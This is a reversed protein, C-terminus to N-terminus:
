QATGRNPRCRRFWAFICEFISAVEQPNIQLEGNKARLSVQAIAITSDVQANLFDGNEKSLKTSEVLSSIVKLIIKKLLIIKENDNMTTQGEILRMIHIIIDFLNNIIDDALPYKDEIKSMTSSYIFNFGTKIDSITSSMIKIEGFGEKSVKIAFDISKSIQTEIQNYNTMKTELFQRLISLALSKKQTGSLGVKGEVLEIVVRIIETLENNDIVGDDLFREILMDLCKKSEEEIIDKVSILQTDAKELNESSQPTNHVGTIESPVSSVIEVISETIDVVEKENHPTTLEIENIEAQEKINVIIVDTM